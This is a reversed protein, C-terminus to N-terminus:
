GKGVQTYDSAKRQELSESSPAKSMQTLFCVSVSLVAAVNEVNLCDSLEKVQVGPRSTVQSTSRFPNVKQIVGKLM